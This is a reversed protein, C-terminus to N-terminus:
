RGGRLLSSFAGHDAVVAVGGQEIDGRGLLDGIGSGGVIGKSRGSGGSAGGRQGVQQVM